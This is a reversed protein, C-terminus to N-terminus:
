PAASVLVLSSPSGFDDDPANPATPDAEVRGDIMFAYVYRGEALPLLTTWTRGDASATLPTADPDWGNFDGVVSVRSVGPAVLAFRVGIRTTGDSVMSFASPSPDAPVGTGRLLFATGAAGTFLCALGAALALAPRVHWLRHTVPAPTQALERELASRWAPRIPVDERLSAILGGLRGADDRLDHGDDHENM